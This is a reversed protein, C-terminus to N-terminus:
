ATPNNSRSSRRNLLGAGLLGVGLLAIGAPRASALLNVDDLSLPGELDFDTSATGLIGGLFFVTRQDADVSFYSNGGGLSFLEPWEAFRAFGNGAFDFECLLRALDGQQTSLKVMAFMPGTQASCLSALATGAVVTGILLLKTSSM